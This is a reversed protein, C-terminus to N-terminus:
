EWCKRELAFEEVIFNDFVSKVSEYEEVSKVTWGLVPVDLKRLSNLKDINNNIEYAIFNPRSEFNLLLNSLLIKQYWPLRTTGAYEVDYDSVEFSGSLQGRLVEPANKRFWAVSYPNFSQIAYQGSYSKLQDYLKSELEGVAGENKIEILLPVQGNVLALVEEFLPIKEPSNAFRLEALESYDMESLYAELGFLRKLKKDHYVVLKKDKTMAVDLEIIYGNEIARAFASLTNEPINESESHMGRHAILTSTLWKTRDASVREAKKACNFMIFGCAVLLTFIIAFLVPKNLWM